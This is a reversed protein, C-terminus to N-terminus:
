GDSLGEVSFEVRRGCRYVAHVTWEADHSEVAVNDSPCRQSEVLAAGVADSLTRYGAVQIPDEGDPHRIVSFRM